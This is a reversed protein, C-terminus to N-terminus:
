LHAVGSCCGCVRAVIAKRVWVQPCVSGSFSLRLRHVATSDTTPAKATWGPFWFREAKTVLRDTNRSAIRYKNVSRSFLCVGIKSVLQGTHTEGRHEPHHGDARLMNSRLLQKYVSYFHMNYQEFSTKNYCNPYPVSHCKHLKVFYIICLFNLYMFM